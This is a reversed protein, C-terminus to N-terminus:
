ALRCGTIVALEDSRVEASMLAQLLEFGGGVRGVVASVTMRQMAFSLFLGDATHLMIVDGREAVEFSALCQLKDAPPYALPLALVPYKITSQAYTLICARLRSGDFFGHENLRLLYSSLPSSYTDLQISVPGLRNGGYAASWALEFLLSCQFHRM